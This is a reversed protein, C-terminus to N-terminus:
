PYEVGIVNLLLETNLKSSDRLQNVTIEVIEPLRALLADCNVVWNRGDNDSDEFVKHQKAYDLSEQVSNQTGVDFNFTIVQKGPQVTLRHALWNRFGNWILQLADGSDPLGLDLGSKQINKMFYLFSATEDKCSGDDEFKDPRVTCYHVKALLNLCSFLSLAIVINGGGINEEKHQLSNNRIYVFAKLDNFVGGVRDEIDDICKEVVLKQNEM